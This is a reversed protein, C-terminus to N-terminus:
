TDTASTGDTRQFIFWQHQWHDRHFDILEFEPHERLWDLAAAREGVSSSARTLRWDDFYILAGPELLPSVFRLVDVTPERLDCDIVCVSVSEPTLGYEAADTRLTTDYFGEVIRLRDAPMEVLDALAEFTRRNCCYGGAYFDGGTYETELPMPTSLGAFSDFAYFNGQLWHRHRFFSPFFSRGYWTGFELYHGRLACRAVYNVEPTTEWASQLPTHTRLVPDVLAAADPPLVLVGRRSMPEAMRMLQGYQSACLAVVADIEPPVETVPALTWGRATLAAADRPPEPGHLLVTPELQPDISDDPDLACLAVPGTSRQRAFALM